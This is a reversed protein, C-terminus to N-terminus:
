STKNQRIKSSKGATNEADKQFLIKQIKKIFFNLFLRKSFVAVLVSLGIFLVIMIIASLFGSDFINKFLGFLLVSFYALAILSLVASIIVGIAFALIKSLKELINLKLINAELLLYEKIDEFISKNEAM